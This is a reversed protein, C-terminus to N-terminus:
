LVREIMTILYDCKGREIDNRALSRAQMLHRRASKLKDYCVAEIDTGSYFNISNTPEMGAYVKSYTVDYSSTTPLELMHLKHNNRENVTLSTVGKSVAKDIAKLTPCMGKLSNIYVSIQSIMPSSLPKGNLSEKFLQKEIDNLYAEQTYPKASKEVSLGMRMLRFMLSMMPYGNNYIWTSIEPNAGGLRLFDTNSDLWKLDYFTSFIKQLVKRQMDVPVSKYSPVSSKENAENIYIGGIYSSVPSLTKNILEIIVFDPFLERYDNPINDDHFWDPSNKVIYKVHSIQADLAAIPDNGLDYNQCRPDTAYAPSRKGYFYRPDGDHEMAWKKLIDSENEGIAAYLYKLTFADCVGPKNVILVVGKEKDGPQALYNYLVNDMVSATIGYKQTFEPSRLEEPSYAASGALNTALGLSLGFAKLMRATLNECIVEDAIYYTRFRPDIEAMQYVGNRRVSVALDRPVGIKTSLIEGTRLDTVNYATVESNNNNLFAITNIMPNNARFTSGKEYPKIIIPKGIGLDEFIINWEDASKQIAKVWSDQILTDIYFVVPQQTTINRRTVYYGKKFRKENRYDTYAIYGTGVRPNAERTNMKEKSLLALTTQVSMTLEPQEKSVFGMISISLKATCNQTISICNDFADASDVFSTKSQPSASVITLMGGYSRGSLNLVDKNSCSFYSTANFVVATSDSTYGEIPFAKYIANSRSLAFAAEQNDDQENLRVNYKPDRFLILSDTKDIILYRSQAAKTGALSIDSATTIASNVLFDRGMLEVPLELYIKDEYQHVTITGKNVTHKKKDKFLKDYVSKKKKQVSDTQQETKAKGKKKKSRANAENTSGIILLIAMLWLFLIKM